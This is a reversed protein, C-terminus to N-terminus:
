GGPDTPVVAARMIAGFGAVISEFTYSRGEDPSSLGVTRRFRLRGLWSVFWRLGTVLRATLGLSVGLKFDCSISSLFTAMDEFTSFCAGISATGNPVVCPVSECDLRALDGGKLAPLDTGILVPLNDAKAGTDLAEVSSLM